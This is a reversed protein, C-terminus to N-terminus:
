YSRPRPRPPVPVPSLQANFKFLFTLRTPRILPMRAVSTALNEHMSPVLPLGFSTLGPSAPLRSRIDRLIRLLFKAISSSRETDKEQEWIGALQSELQTFASQLNATLTEVARDPDEKNLALKRQDVVEDSGPRPYFPDNNLFAARAQEVGAETPEM